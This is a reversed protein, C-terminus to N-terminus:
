LRHPIHPDDAGAMRQYSLNDLHQALRPVHAMLLRAPNDLRGATGGDAKGKGPRDLYIIGCIRDGAWDLGQIVAGADVHCSQSVQSGHDGPKTGIRRLLDFRMFLGDSGVGAIRGAAM